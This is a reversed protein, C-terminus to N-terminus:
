NLLIKVSVSKGYVLFHQAPNTESKFPTVSVAHFQSEVGSGLSFGFDFYFGVTVM